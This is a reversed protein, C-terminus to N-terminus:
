AQAPTTEDLEQHYLEFIKFVCNRIQDWDANHLYNIHPYSYRVDVGYESFLENYMQKWLRGADEQTNIALKQMASNLAARRTASLPDLNVRPYQSTLCDTLHNIQGQMEKVQDLVAKMEPSQESEPIQEAVAGGKAINPADREVNLLYTRVSKAVDSDRLLMGVRLISRRNFLLNSRNALKVDKCIFGGPVNKFDKPSINEGYSMIYDKAENGTLNLLGDHVLESHNNQVVKKVVERDVGYYTAVGLTNTYETGPISVIKGVKALVEVHSMLGDRTEKNEIIDLETETNNM